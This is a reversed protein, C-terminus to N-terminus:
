VKTNGAFFGGGHIFYLIPANKKQRRHLLGKFMLYIMTIKLRLRSRNPNDVSIRVM